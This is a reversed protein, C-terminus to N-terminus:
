EAPMVRVVRVRQGASVSGGGVLRSSSSEPARRLLICVSKPGAPRLASRREARFSKCQSPGRARCLSVWQWGPPHLAKRHEAGFPVSQSPGREPVSQGLPGCGM